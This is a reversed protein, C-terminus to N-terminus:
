TAEEPYDNQWESHGEKVRAIVRRGLVYIEGYQQKNLKEALWTDPFSPIGDGSAM